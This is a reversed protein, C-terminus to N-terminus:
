GATNFQMYDSSHDYTILGRTHTAGTGGDAFAISGNSVTSGVITMGADGSGSGVVLDSAAANYDSPFNNKIGVNGSSDIRMRENSGTYFRYGTGGSFTLDSTDAVTNVGIRYEHQGSNNGDIILGADESGITNKIRVLTNNSSASTNQIDVSLTSDSTTTGLLLQGSSAIRMKEAGAPYFGIDNGIAGIEAEGNNDKFQIAAISDTSEFKAVVNSAGSNVHLKQAPSSSGIGVNGSEKITMLANNTDVSTQNHGIVFVQDTASNNSDINIRLSNPTNISLNNSTNTEINGAALTLDNVTSASLTTFSGAAATTGGIVSSDIVAGDLNLAISTGNSAFIADLTDLDANLKTGWTDTSAGVEPKTLNLNTTYTDAM